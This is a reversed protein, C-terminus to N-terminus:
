IKRRLKEIETQLYVITESSLQKEGKSIVVQALNLVAPLAEIIESPTLGLKIIAAIASYIEM